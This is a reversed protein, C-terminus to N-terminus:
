QFELAAVSTCKNLHQRRRDIYRHASVSVRVHTAVGVLVGRNPAWFCGPVVYELASPLLPLVHEDDTRVSCSTDESMVSRRARLMHVTCLLLLLCADGDCGPRESMQLLLRTNTQLWSHWGGVRRGM